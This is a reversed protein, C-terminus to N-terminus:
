RIGAGVSGGSDRGTGSTLQWSSNAVGPLHDGVGARTGSRSTTGPRSPANSTPWREGIAEVEIDLGHHRGIAAGVTVLTAARIALAADADDGDVYGEAAARTADAIHNVETRFDRVRPGRRSRDPDSLATGSGHWLSNLVVSIPWPERM